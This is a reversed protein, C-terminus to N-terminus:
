LLAAALWIPMAEILSTAITRFWTVSEAPVHARLFPQFPSLLLEVLEARFAYYGVVLAATIALKVLSRASLSWKAKPPAPPPAPHATVGAVSSGPMIETSAPTM